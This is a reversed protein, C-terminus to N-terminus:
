GGTEARGPKAALERYTDYLHALIRRATFPKAADIAAQALQDRAQRLAWELGEALAGPTAEDVLWGNRGSSVTRRVEVVTTSVVPLGCALAELVVRPGGGESRATLLLVDSAQMLRAVEDRPRDGLLHVRESIGLEAARAEVAGRLEGEGAVVLHTNPRTTEILRAVAEVALVPKKIETLRVALLVFSDTEAASPDLGLRVALDTRLEHRRPTDVPRFVEDDYWVPLFEIREAVKPHATRLLEAGPENVVFVRDMRELAADSFQRYLSQLKPWGSPGPWDRIDLHVLQVTPGRHMRVLFSRYPRHLQLIRGSVTLARLLRALALMTRLAAAPRRTMGGSAALALFNVPRGSLELHTWRGVPRAAPDRTLGAVSIEFDPPAYKVFDHLFTQIGGITPAAPDRPHVVLVRVLDGTPRLGEL